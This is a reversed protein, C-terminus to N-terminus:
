PWEQMASVGNRVWKFEETWHLKGTAPLESTETIRQEIRGMEQRLLPHDFHTSGALEQTVRKAGERDNLDILNLANCADLSEEAVDFMVAFSEDDRTISGRKVIQFNLSMRRKSVPKTAGHLASHEFFLISGADCPVTYVSRQLLDDIESYSNIYQSIGYRNKGGRPFERDVEPGAFGCLGGSEEDAHEFPVWITLADFGYCRDYHPETFFSAMEHNKSLYIGPYCIRLYVLPNFVWDGEYGGQALSKLVGDLLFEMVEQSAFRFSLIRSLTSEKQVERMFELASLECGYDQRLQELDSLAKSRLRGIERESFVGTLRQIRDSAM